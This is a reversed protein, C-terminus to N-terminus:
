GLEKRVTHIREISPVESLAGVQLRHYNRDWTTLIDPDRQMHGQSESESYGLLSRNPLTLLNIPFAFPRHEGMSYPAVQIIRGPSYVFEELAALQRAMVQSGGVLRHICSEDLVTHLLPADTVSLLQQRNLLHALWADAEERSRVGRRVAAGILAEAYETTQLLGPIVGIEFVRIERAKAEYEAYNEFGDLMSSGRVDRCMGLFKKDTGFAADARRAFRVTPPKRGTEVASIHVSSYGTLKALEEQTWGREERM